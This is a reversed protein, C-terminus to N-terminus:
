KRYVFYGELEQYIEGRRDRKRSKQIDIYKLSLFLAARKRARHKITGEAGRTHAHTYNKKRERKKKNKYVTKRPTNNRM